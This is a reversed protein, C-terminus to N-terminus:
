PLKELLQECAEKLRQYPVSAALQSSTNESIQGAYDLYDVAARVLGATIGVFGNLAQTSNLLLKGHSYLDLSVAPEGNKLFLFPRVSMATMENVYGQDERVMRVILSRWKIHQNTFAQLTEAHAAACAEDLLVQVDEAQELLGALAPLAGTERLRAFLTMEQTNRQVVSPSEFEELIARLEPLRQLLTPLAFVVPSAEEKQQQSM